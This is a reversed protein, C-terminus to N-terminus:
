FSYGLLLETESQEFTVWNAAGGFIEFYFHRILFSFCLDTGNTGVSQRYCIQTLLNEGVARM